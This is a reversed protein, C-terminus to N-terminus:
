RDAHASSATLERFARVALAAPDHEGDSAAWEELGIRIALTAAGALIRAGFPDDAFAPRQSFIDYLLRESNDNVRRWVVDLADDGRASQLLVRMTSLDAQATESSPRLQQTILEAVRDVLHDEPLAALEQRWQEAGVELFPLVADEKRSVYRYFTRLSVGAENAIQEATVDTTGREAFLRAAAAAIDHRTTARRRATLTDHAM